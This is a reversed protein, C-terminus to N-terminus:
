KRREAVVDPIGNLDYPFTYVQIPATPAVDILDPATGPLSAQGTVSRAHTDCFVVNLATGYRITGPFNNRGFPLVPQRYASGVPADMNVEGAKVYRANYFMTTGAINPFVTGSQVPGQAGIPAKVMTDEFVRFNPSFGAFNLNASSTFTKGLAAGAYGLVTDSTPSNTAPSVASWKIAKPEAPSTFMDKNKTYPMLLDYVSAINTGTGPIFGDGDTTTAVMPYMDDSDSLYIQSATGIQKANSLDATKKAALKAQAFVPFLIAALIAIIAIVVLLEILTFAKRM